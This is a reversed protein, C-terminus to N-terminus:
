HTRKHVHVPPPFSMGVFLSEYQVFYDQVITVDDHWLKLVQAQMLKAKTNGGSKDAVFAALLGVAAAVETDNDDEM